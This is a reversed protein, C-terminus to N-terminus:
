FLKRFFKVLRQLPGFRRTSAGWRTEGARQGFERDQRQRCTALSCGSELWEERITPLVTMPARRFSEFSTPCFMRLYEPLGAAAEATHEEEKVDSSTMLMPASAEESEELIAPLLRMPRRFVELSMPCYTRLYEPVEAARQESESTSAACECTVPTVHFTPVGVPAKKSVGLLLRGDRHIWARPVEDAVSM